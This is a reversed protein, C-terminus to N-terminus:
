LVTCKFAMTVISSIPFEISFTSDVAHDAVCDTLRWFMFGAGAIAENDNRGRLVMNEIFNALHRCRHAHAHATKLLMRYTTAGDVPWWLTLPRFPHPHIKAAVPAIRVQNQLCVTCIIYCHVREFPQWLLM